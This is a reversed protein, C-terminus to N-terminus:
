SKEKIINQLKDVLSNVDQNKDIKIFKGKKVTIVTLWGPLVETLLKLHTEVDAAGIGSRYSDMLKQTAAEMSLAPKKETVYYSRLIRVIEPLRELMKLRQEQEPKRTLVAELKAAEKARIRELLSSPVGKLTTTPSNNEASVTKDKKPTTADEPKILKLKAVSELAREVKAPVKGRAQSLVDTATSYKRVVPAEPLPAPVVDPVQDLKFKPHWRRLDDDKVNLPSKLNSLFERHHRKVISVLNHHFVNRRELLTTATFPTHNFTSGNQLNKLQDPSIDTDFNPQVTLQYDTSKGGFEPLGKEQKFIYALPNVTKIQGVHKVEFNKRLMEQVANKLKSFTIIETRNHLMSVVTDMSRFMELLVKYKYPLSLSPAVPQALSHFREYAAPATKKSEPEEENKDKEAEKVANKAKAERLKASSKDFQALREQLEALKGCKALKQRMEAPTLKQIKGSGSDGEVKEVKGKSEQAVPSSKLVSKVKDRLPTSNTTPTEQSPERAMTPTGVSLTEDRSLEESKSLAKSKQFSPTPTSPPSPELKVVSVTKEKTEKTSPGQAKTKDGEVKEVSVKSKQAASDVKEMSEKSSPAQVEKTNKSVTEVKLVLKKRANTTLKPKEAFESFDFGREPTKANFESLLDKQMAKAARSRKRAVTETSEGDSFRKTPTCPPSGNHDDAIATTEEVTESVTCESSAKESELPQVAKSKVRTKSEFAEDIEGKTATASKGTKIRSSRRTSTVKGETKTKLKKSVIPVDTVSESNQTGTANQKLNTEGFTVSGLDFQEIRQVKRRKSPQLNGTRKRNSFYDTVKGQAM